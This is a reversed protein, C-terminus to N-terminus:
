ISIFEIKGWSTPPSLIAFCGSVSDVLDDHRTDPFNAFQNLFASNWPGRVLYVLGAEVKAFWPQSRMIKDGMKRPDHAKITFGALEPIMMIAAVQNKGGSAPEQEIYIPVDKGDMYATQIIADIIGSWKERISVQDAIIFKSYDRILKTGVTSDPNGSNKGTLKMKKESAAMDWYRVKSVKGAAGRPIFPESDLIKGNFWDRNGLSGGSSVFKGFLEQERLWGDSYMALQQAYFGPDLNSKNDEISGFFFEVFKMDPYAKKFEELALDDIEQKIFLDYMWHDTGKPTATCWLQPYEGIRVCSSAIKWGLGTQDRGAEDYWLWNVNAGRASEPDKLGKCTVTAGNIFNLTFPQMPSWEPSSRYKHRDVVMDWPIWQRFEVWTSYKFNEFDPNLVMGPMGQRIKNLAKQSGGASNHTPIFSDTVLFLSNPSDVTICKVPVSPVENIELIYRRYRRISQSGREIVCCRKRELRFVPIYPVFSFSYIKYPKGNVKIYKIRKNTKISLTSCLEKFGDALVNSITSFEARGEKSIYGDSDMLGCLLDLRQEYNSRLYEQPIHKNKILNLTKLKYYVGAKKPLFRGDEGRKLEETDFNYSYRSAKKHLLYGLSSFISLVEDKDQDGITVVSGSSTGDGLWYGLIYPHLPLNKSKIKVPKALDVSFNIDGRYEQYIDKKIEETTLVRYDHKPTCQKPLKNKFYTNGKRRRFSKRTKADLVEWLHEADAVIRTQDDFLVEYCKHNYMVESIDVVKTPKGHKDFVIDGINITEMTKWGDLTPIKTDLALAKGSGRGGSYLSFKAKSHIFDDQVQTARFRDGDFRKFYGKEDTNWGKSAYSSDVLEKQIPIEIGRSKMESLLAILQQREEKSMTKAM